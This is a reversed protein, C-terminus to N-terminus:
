TIPSLQDAMAERQGAEIHAIEREIWWIAKRLDQVEDQGPKKGARVLYKFPAWRYPKDPFFAEIVDFSELGSAARYHSPNINDYRPIIRDSKHETPYTTEGSM